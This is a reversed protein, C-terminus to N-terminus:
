VRGGARLILAQFPRARYVLSLAARASVKDVRASRFLLPKSAFASRTARLPTSLKSSSTSSMAQSGSELCFSVFRHPTDHHDINVHCSAFSLYTLRVSGNQCEGNTQRLLGECSSSPRSLQRYLVQTLCGSDPQGRLCAIIYTCHLSDLAHNDARMGM